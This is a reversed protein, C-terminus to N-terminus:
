SCPSKALSYPEGLHRTLSPQQPGTTLHLTGLRPQILPTPPQGLTPPMQMAQVMGPKGSLNMGNMSLGGPARTDLVALPIYPVTMRVSRPKVRRVASLSGLQRALPVSSRVPYWFVHHDVIVVVFGPPVAASAPWSVSIAHSGMVRMTPLRPM